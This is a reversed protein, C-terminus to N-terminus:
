FRYKLSIGSLFNRAPAANYYRGGFANIDNGLSYESDLLNDGSVYLDASLHQGMTKRFGLRATLLHFSGAYATNLDNLPIPDSYYWSLNLYLGPKSELDIGATIIQPSVSPLKKGELNNTDADIKLTGGYRFHHYTYSFRVVSKKLFAYPDRILQYSLFGELGPQRTSGANVFYDAGADDRRQAITNKLRFLFMSLDFYLRDSFKSGRFGLEYNWGEEAELDLNLITTSPLLEANTPPSFGKSISGYLSANESVKKLVSFRPALENSYNRHQVTVPRESIRSFSIDARNLSAGASFIWGKSLELNAQAFFFYQRNNIEDDTQVTDPMGMRNGAVRVTAFGQQYEAGAHLNLVSNGLKNKYAIITRGGAHPETRREYNRVAPNKLETFAGYLSTSSKWHENWNYEYSFGALFMKTRIAAFAEASGPNQGARPRAQRPNAAYEAATLAGPTQYYLDGYLLHAKLKGKETIATEVDWTFVKRNSNTHDRYGDSELHQFSVTNQFNGSGFRLSTNLNSTNFSGRSYDVSVGPNWLRMESNLLLVGGTGAGYLSGGPGKIVEVSQLNYFGLQNLFTNGGPDTYPIGNYYVKVNRVGFPSRLSSGRINLRYSGPSREEMRIGPNMNIAPLLSLNSFRDLDAKSVVSVPVPVDILRRNNEYARVIVQRLVEVSDGSESIQANSFISPMLLFLFVPIRKM